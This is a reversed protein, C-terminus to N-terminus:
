LDDRLIWFSVSEMPQGLACNGTGNVAIKHGMSKASLLLTYLSKGEDTTPDLVYYYVNHSSCAPRNSPESDLGFYISPTAGSMGGGIRTIKGTATDSASVVTSFALLALPIIKKIM